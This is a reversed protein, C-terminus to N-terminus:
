IQSLLSFDNEMQLEINEKISTLVRHRLETKDVGGLFISRPKSIRAESVYTKIIESSKSLEMKGIAIVDDIGTPTGIITTPIFATFFEENGTGTYSVVYEYRITIDTGTKQEVTAPLYKPNGEYVVNGMVIISNRINSISVEPKVSVSASCSILFLSFVPIIWKKVMLAVTRSRQIILM